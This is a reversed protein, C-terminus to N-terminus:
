DEPVDVYQHILIGLQRLRRRDRSARPGRRLM